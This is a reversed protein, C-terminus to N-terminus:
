IVRLSLKEGLNGFHDLWERAVEDGDEAKRRLDAYTTQLIGYCINQVERLNVEFPTSGLV